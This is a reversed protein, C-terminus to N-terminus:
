PARNPAAPNTAMSRTNPDGCWAFGAWAAVRWGEPANPDGGSPIMRTYICVGTNGRDLEYISILDVDWADGDPAARRFGVSFLGGWEPPTYSAICSSLSGDPCNAAVYARLEDTLWAEAAADDGAGAARVFAEAAAFAPNTQDPTLALTVVVVAAVVGFIILAILLIRNM